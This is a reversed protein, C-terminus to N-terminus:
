AIFFTPVNKCNEKCVIIFSPMATILDVWINSSNLRIYWTQNSPSTNEQCHTTGSQQLSLIGQWFYSLKKRRWFTHCIWFDTQFKPEILTFKYSTHVEFMKEKQLILKKPENWFSPSLLLFFSMFVLDLNYQLNELCVSM